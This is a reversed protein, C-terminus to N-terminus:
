TTSIHLRVCVLLRLGSLASAAATASRGTGAQLRGQFNLGAPAAKAQAALAGRQLLQGLPALLKAAELCAQCIDLGSHMCCACPCVQALLSCTLQWTLSTWREPGLINMGTLFPANRSYWPKTLLSSAGAMTCCKPASTTAERKCRTGTSPGEPTGAISQEGLGTGQQLGHRQTAPGLVGAVTKDKFWKCEVAGPKNENVWKGWM